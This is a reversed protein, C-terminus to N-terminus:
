WFDGRVPFGVREADGSHNLAQIPIPKGTTAPQQYRQIAQIIANMAAYVATEYDKMRAAFYDDDAMLEAASMMLVPAQVQDGQPTKDRLANIIANREKLTRCKIYLGPSDAQSVMLEAPLSPFDPM